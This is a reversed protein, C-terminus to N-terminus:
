DDTPRRPHSARTTLNRAAERLVQRLWRHGPDADNRRAGFIAVPVASELLDDPEFTHVFWILAGDVPRRERRVWGSFQLTSYRYDSRSYRLPFNTPTQVPGWFAAEGHHVDDADGLATREGDVLM